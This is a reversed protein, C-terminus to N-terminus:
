VPQDIWIYDALRDWSYNNSRISYNSTVQLPGNQLFKILPQDISYSTIRVETFLGIMSSSGPRSHLSYPFVIPELIFEGATSGFAGLSLVTGM